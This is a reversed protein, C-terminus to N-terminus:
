ITNDFNSIYQKLKKLSLPKSYLYGQIIVCDNSRLFALQEKNEVGEAVLRYNLSEALQCTSAVIARSTQKDAIHKVFSRDVKLENFPLKNIQSITSYGTGFDDISLGVGFLRLKTLAFETEESINIASTETLEFVIQEPRVGSVAILEILEAATQQNLTKSSINFSVTLDDFKDLLDRLQTLATNVLMETFENIMRSNELMPIFRAPAVDGLLPHELRALCEIGVITDSDINVQPQFVPYFWNESLARRLEKIDLYPLSAIENSYADSVEVEDCQKLIDAFDAMRFPKQLFGVPKLGVSSAYKVAYDLMVEDIGSIFVIAGDFSSDSLDNLVDLGDNDPMQMDLLLVESHSVSTKVEESWSSFCTVEVGQIRGFEALVHLFSAEDDIAVINRNLM